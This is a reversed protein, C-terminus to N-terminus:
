LGSDAVSLSLVGCVRKPKVKASQERWVTVNISIKDVTSAKQFNRKELTRPGKVEKANGSLFRSTTTTTPKGLRGASSAAESHTNASNALSNGGYLESSRGSTEGDARSTKLGAPEPVPHVQSPRQGMEALLKTVEPPLLVGPAVPFITLKKEISARAPPEALRDLSCYMASVPTESCNLDELLTLLESM